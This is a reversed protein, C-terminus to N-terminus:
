AQRLEDLRNAAKAVKIASPDSACNEIAIDPTIGAPFPFTEFTTTPTYRPDNGVGLWTGLRLSLVEHFRSHLIGFAMDDERAITIAGDDGMM